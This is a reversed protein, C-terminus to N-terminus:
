LNAKPMHTEIPSGLRKALQPDVHGVMIRAIRESLVEWDHQRAISQRRERNAPCNAEPLLMRAISEQWQAPSETLAVVDAFPELSPIRTGVVPLGSALYEHLKLPYIYRTYGDLVYPMICVDFHQPYAALVKTLKAGLFHVNPLARLSAIIELIEPHPSTEGVFVFHWDPRAKSLQLLLPLDLQKKVYGAYGIRPHPIGVIDTPPLMPTSFSAYDVGNPVFETNPNFKGKKELLAPSHIFVQNVRELVEREDPSVPLDSSSFSYEDDIHYCSLDFSVLDLARVFEPRWLYLLIKHCGQRLLLNRAQALRKQFTWNVLWTPRYFHPLWRPPDYLMLGPPLLNMDLKRGPEKKGSLANHWDQAPNMWVVPFYRALRSLIQHRVQWKQGWEEPPMAIIGIESFIPASNPNPRTSPASM